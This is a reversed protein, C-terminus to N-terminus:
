VNVITLSETIRFIGLIFHMGLLAYLTVFLPCSLILIVHGTSNPHRTVGNQGMRTELYVYCYRDRTGTFDGLVINGIM